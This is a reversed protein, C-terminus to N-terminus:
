VGQVFVELQANRKLKIKLSENDAAKFANIFNATHESILANVCSMVRLKREHLEILGIGIIM